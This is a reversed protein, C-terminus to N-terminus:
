SPRDPEPTRLSPDLLLLYSKRSAQPLLPDSYRFRAPFGVPREIGRDSLGIGSLSKVLAIETVHCVMRGTKQNTKRTATVMVSDVGYRNDRRSYSGSDPGHPVGNETLRRLFGFTIDSRERAEKPAHQLLGEGVGPPPSLPDDLTVSAKQSVRGQPLSNAKLM